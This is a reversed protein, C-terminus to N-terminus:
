RGLLTVAARVNRVDVAHRIARLHTDTILGAVKGVSRREKPSAGELQERLDVPLGLLLALDTLHKDREEQFRAAARAKLSLAGIWDPVPIRGQAKGASVQATVLRRSAGRGGPVEVTRAPPDTQLNARPGAKDSALVDVLLEGREFRHGIGFSNVTELKFNRDKLWHSIQSTSSAQLDVLVDVDRTRAPRAVGLAAAHLVVMQAGVLAWGGHDRNLEFLLPWMEKEAGIPPPLQVKM